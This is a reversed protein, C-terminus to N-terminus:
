SIYNRILNYYNLVIHLKYLPYLYYYIIIKSSVQIIFFKILGLNIKM